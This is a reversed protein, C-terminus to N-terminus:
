PLVTFGVSKSIDVFPEIVEVVADAGGGIWSEHSLPVSISPRATGTPISQTTATITAPADAGMDSVTTANKYLTVRAKYGPDLPLDGILFFLALSDGRHPALDITLSVTAM